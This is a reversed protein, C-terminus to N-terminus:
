AAELRKYETPAGGARKTVYHLRANCQTRDREAEGRVYRAFVFNCGRILPLKAPLGFNVNPRFNSIARSLILHVPEIAITITTVVRVFKIGNAARGKTPREHDPHAFSSSHTLSDTQRDKRNWTKALRCAFSRVFLCGFLCALLCVFFCVFWCQFYGVLILSIIM